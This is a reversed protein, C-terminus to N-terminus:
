HNYCRHESCRALGDIRPAGIATSCCSPARIHARTPYNTTGRVVVARHGVVLGMQRGGRDVQPVAPSPVRATPDPCVNHGIKGRTSLSYRTAVAASGFTPRPIVM